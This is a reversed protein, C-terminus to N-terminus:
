YKSYKKVITVPFQAQYTGPIPIMANKNLIIEPNSDESDFESYLEKAKDTIKKPNFGLNGKTFSKIHVLLHYGGKTQVWFYKPILDDLFSKMLKPLNCEHPVDMDFDIWHKTGRNKQYCNHLLIESKNFRYLIDEVSKKKSGQTAITSLEFYYNNLTENFEKLAKLTDSPNINIYLIMCKEPVAQLNKTLYSGKVTEYRKIKALFHEWSKKRILKRDFMETRGLHYKTREEENLQKNRASVSIFGVESPLLEPFVNDYFFKLEDINYIFNYTEKM